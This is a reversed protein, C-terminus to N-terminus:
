KLAFKQSTDFNTHQIMKNTFRVSIRLISLKILVKFFLIISNFQATDESKYIQKSSQSLIYQQCLNSEYSELKLEFYNTPLCSTQVV